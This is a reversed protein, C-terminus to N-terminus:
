GYFNLGKEFEIMLEKLLLRFCKLEAKSPRKDKYDWRSKDPNREKWKQYDMELKILGKYKEMLYTITQQTIQEDKM